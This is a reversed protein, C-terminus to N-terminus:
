LARCNTYYVYNIGPIKHAIRDVFKDCSAANSFCTTVSFRTNGDSRVGGGSGDVLFGRVKARFYANGSNRKSKCKDFGDHNIKIVVAEPSGKITAASAGQAMGAIAVLSALGAVLSRATRQKTM